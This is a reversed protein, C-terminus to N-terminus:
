GVPPLEVDGEPAPIEVMWTLWPADLLTAHVPLGRKGFFRTVASRVGFEGEPRRGDLFDHGAIIGGPRVRDYWAHLDEMVSAYDHRADLYVFDLSHRPVRASAEVSTTRWITSREGFQALRDCAARYFSDHQVQPVNSVDFYEEPGAELWPDVSILHRGRWYRLLVESYGGAQVGVEVGCGFLRRANLVVPLEGRDAVFALSSGYTARAELIDLM